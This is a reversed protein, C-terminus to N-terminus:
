ELSNMSEICTVVRHDAGSKGEMTRESRDATGEDNQGKKRWCITYMHVPGSCCTEALSAMAATELDELRTFCYVVYPM